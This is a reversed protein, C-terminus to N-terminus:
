KIKLIFLLIFLTISSIFFLLFPFIFHKKLNPYIPSEPNIINRQFTISRNFIEFPNYSLNSAQLESEIISLTDLNANFKAIGRQYDNINLKLDILKKETETYNDNLLDLKTLVFNSNKQSLNNSNASFPQIESLISDYYAISKFTNAKNEIYSQLSLSNKKKFLEVVRFSEAHNLYLIFNNLHTNIVDGPNKLSSQFKIDYTNQNEHVEQNVILSNIFEQESFDKLNLDEITKRVLKQNYIMPLYDAFENSLLSYEGFYTPFSNDELNAVIFSESGYEESTYFVYYIFLASFGIINLILLIKWKSILHNLIDFFSTEDINKDGKM